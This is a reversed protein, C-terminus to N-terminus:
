THTRRTPAPKATPALPLSQHPQSDTIPAIRPRRAGIGHGDVGAPLTPAPVRRDGRVAAAQSTAALLQQAVHAVTTLTGVILDTRSHAPPVLDDIHIANSARAPGDPPWSVVIFADNRIVGQNVCRLLSVKHHPAGVLGITQAHDLLLTLEAPDPKGTPDLTALWGDADLVTAAGERLPFAPAGLWARVLHEDVTWRREFSHLHRYADAAGLATYADVALHCWHSDGRVRSTGACRADATTIAEAIQAWEPRTHTPGSWGDGYFILAWQETPDDYQNM